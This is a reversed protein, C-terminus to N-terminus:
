SLYKWNLLVTNFEQLFVHLRGERIYKTMHQFQNKDTKNILIFYKYYNIYSVKLNLISLFLLHKHFRIQSNNQTFIRSVNTMHLLM